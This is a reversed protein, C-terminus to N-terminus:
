HPASAPSTRRAAGAAVTLWLAVSVWTWLRGFSALAPLKAVNAVVFSSVAYMGVPFVTSWRRPHYRPRPSFLEYAILAFLWALSTACVVIAVARLFGAASIQPYRSLEALALASIALAGGAVWHDGRGARVEGLDFRLSVLGYVALGAVCAALAAWWLWIARERAALSAGLVALSAPAVTLLFASGSRSSRPSRGLGPALVLWAAAAIALFAFAPAVSGSRVLRSGVVATAAVISLDAVHTGGRRHRPRERTVGAAVLLALAAWGAAALAFWIWSLTDHGDDSLAVSVIGTGMVAPGLRGAPSM